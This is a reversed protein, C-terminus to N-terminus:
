FRRFLNLLYVTGFSFLIIGEQVLIIPTQECKGSKVPRILLGSFLSIPIFGM